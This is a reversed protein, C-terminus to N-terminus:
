KYPEFIEKAKKIGFLDKVWWLVAAWVISVVLAALSGLALNLNSFGHSALTMLSLLVAAVVLYLLYLWGTFKLTWIKLALYAGVLLYVIVILTMITSQFHTVVIYGFIAVLLLVFLAMLRLIMAKLTGYKVKLNPTRERRQTPMKISGIDKSIDDIDM